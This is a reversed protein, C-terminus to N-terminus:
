LRRQQMFRRLVPRPVTRSAGVLAKYQRGPVSVSKGKRADALGEAVVEDADQWMWDPVRSMDAKARQHFETRTFGPCVACVLVGTGALQIALAESFMTVWAKSASYTAVDGRPVFGAVSSINVILGRGASTMPALAAYSLRMVARVNLDLLREEDALPLNGFRRYLGIGASNVLTDILPEAALRKAVREYGEDTTLDASLVDVHVRYRDEIAVKTTELRAEDRAVVVLDSGESALRRAFAAGIGSTAGTILASPM